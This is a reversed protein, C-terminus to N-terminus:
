VAPVGREDHPRERKEDVGQEKGRHAAKHAFAGKVQLREEELGYAYAEDAKGCAAYAEGPKGM